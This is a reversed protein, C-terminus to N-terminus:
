VKSIQFKLLIVRINTSYIRMGQLTSSDNEDKCYADLRNTSPLPGYIQFIPSAVPTSIPPAAEFFSVSAWKKRSLAYGRMSTDITLNIYILTGSYSNYKPVQLRDIWNFIVTLIRCSQNDDGSNPIQVGLKPRKLDPLLKALISFKSVEKWPKLSWGKPCKGDLYQHWFELWLQHIIKELTGM